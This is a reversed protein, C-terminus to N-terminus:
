SWYMSSVSLAGGAAADTQPDDGHGAVVILVGILLEDHLGLYIVLGDHNEGAVCGVIVLQLLGHLDAFIDLLLIDRLQRLGDLVDDALALLLGAM